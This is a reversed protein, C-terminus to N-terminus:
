RAPSARAPPGRAARPSRHLPSRTPMGRERTAQTRSSRYVRPGRTASRASTTGAGMSNSPGMSVTAPTATIFTPQPGARSRYRFSPRAASIRGRLAAALAVRALRPCRCAMAWSTMARIPEWCSTSSGSNVGRIRRRASPVRTRAMRGASRSTSAKRAAMRWTGTSSPETRFGRWDGTPRYRFPSRGSHVAGLVAHVDYGDDGGVGVPGLPAPRRDEDGPVPRIHLLDGEAGGLQHLPHDVLQRLIEPDNGDVLPTTMWRQQ